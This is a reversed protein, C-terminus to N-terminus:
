QTSASIPYPGPVKKAGQIDKSRPFTCGQGAAAPAKKAAQLAFRRRGVAANGVRGSLTSRANVRSSRTTDWAAARARSRRIGDGIAAHGRVFSGMSVIKLRGSRPIRMWLQTTPAAFHRFQHPDRFSFLLSDCRAVCTYNQSIM